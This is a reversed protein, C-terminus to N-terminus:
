RIEVIPEGAGFAAVRRDLSSVVAALLLDDVGDGGAMFELMDRVRVRTGRICPTGGCVDDNSVIHRLSDSSVPLM